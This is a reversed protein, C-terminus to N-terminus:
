AVGRRRVKSMNPSFAARVGELAWRETSSLKLYLAHGSVRTQETANRGAEWVGTGRSIPTATLAEEATRGSLVEYTVSGSDKGLVAQISKLLIEDFNQSLFPGLLVYSEIPTGDDDEADPDFARIYGDSSGILVVRDSPTNGDITCSCLPNMRGAAFRDPQWENNEGWFYHTTDATPDDLSTVFIQCGRMRENWQLHVANEGTDIDQLLSDIPTSIREPQSRSAMRYISGTNAMFYITGRPDQCFARGFAVGISNTVLDISGGQMPDGRMVYISTNGGFLLEDDNYAMLATITDGIFGLRSNNGAVAITPDNEVAAGYDFDRPDSVRSMFWNQSDELLGSLVTRGRWTEILRAKNATHPADDQPMSGATATWTEVTNTIPVFYRYHLGDVMYLKQNNPASFLIGSFNLPPTTASNNTAETAATTQGPESWFVRGQSVSVLTVVRGLQSTQVSGGSQVGCVTNLHQVVWGAVLPDSVYKALGIRSGGRFRRATPDFARVNLSDPTTYVRTPAGDPNAPGPRWPQRQAARSIDMGGTAFHVDRLIEPPQPPM